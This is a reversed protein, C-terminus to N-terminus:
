GRDQSLEPLEFPGPGCGTHCLVVTGTDRCHEMLLPLNECTEPDFFQSFPLLKIGRLGLGAIEALTDKVYRPDKSPNVSGFGILTDPYDRVWGAVDRNTVHSPSYLSSRIQELMVEFPIFEEQGSDDYHRRLRDLIEPRDVDSPDTDAALIVAHTVGAEAMEPLLKLDPAKPHVHFDVVPAPPRDGAGAAGAPSAGPSAGGRDRVAGRGRVVRWGPQPRYPHRLIDLAMRVRYRVSFDEPAEVSPTLRRVLDARDEPDEIRFLARFIEWRIDAPAKLVAEAMEERGPLAPLGVDAPNEKM